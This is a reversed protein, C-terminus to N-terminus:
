RPFLRVPGVGRSTRSVGIKKVTQRSDLLRVM